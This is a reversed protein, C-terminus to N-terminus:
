VMSVSTHSSQPIGASIGAYPYPPPWFGGGKKTTPQDRVVMTLVGTKLSIGPLSIGQTQVAQPVTALLGVRWATRTKSRFPTLIMDSSVMCGPADQVNLVSAASAIHYPVCRYLYLLFSSSVRLHLKAANPAPLSGCPSGSPSTM